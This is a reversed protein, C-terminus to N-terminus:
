NVAKVRAHGYRVKRPGARADAVVRWMTSTKIPTMRMEKQKPCYTDAAKKKIVSKDNAM